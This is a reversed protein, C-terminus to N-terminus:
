LNLLNKANEYYIKKRVEENLEMEEFGNVAQELPWFPYASAWIFRDSMVGEMANAMEARMPFNRNIYIDPCLWINDYLYRLSAIELTYPYAGHSIILDLERFEDAVHELHHPQCYSSDPFAVYSMTLSVPVGLDECRGLVGYLSEDDVHRPPRLKGPDISVGHLDLDNIARDVEEIAGEEDPDIGAFCLFRDDTEDQLSALDENPVRGRSGGTHPDADGSISPVRRGLAVAREIGVDDMEELLASLSMESISKPTPAEGRTEVVDWMNSIERLGRYPPRLRFDIKPLVLALEPATCIIRTMTM